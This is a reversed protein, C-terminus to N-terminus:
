ENSLIFAPKSDTPPSIHLETPKMDEIAAPVEEAPPIQADVWRHIDWAIVCLIVLLIYKWM